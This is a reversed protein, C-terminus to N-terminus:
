LLFYENDCIIKDCSNEKSYKYYVITIVLVSLFTQESSLPKVSKM